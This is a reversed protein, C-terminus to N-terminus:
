FGRSLCTRGSLTLPDLVSLSGPEAPDLDIFKIRHCIGRTSGRLVDGPDLTFTYDLAIRARRLDIHPPWKTRNKGREHEDSSERLGLLPIGLRGSGCRKRGTASAGCDYAEQLLAM